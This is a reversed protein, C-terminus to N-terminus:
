NEESNYLFKERDFNGQKWRDANIKLRCIQGAPIKFYHHDKDQGALEYGMYICFDKVHGTVPITATRRIM